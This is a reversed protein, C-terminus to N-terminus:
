LFSRTNRYFVLLRGQRRSGEPCDHKQLSGINGAAMSLEKEFRAAGATNPMAAVLRGGPELRERALAFWAM